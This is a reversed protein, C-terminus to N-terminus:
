LSDRSSKAGVACTRLVVRHLTWYCARPMWMHNFSEFHGSSRVCTGHGGGILGQKRLQVAVQKCPVLMMIWLILM